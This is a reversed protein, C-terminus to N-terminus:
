STMVLLIIIDYQLTPRCSTLWDFLELVFIFCEPQNFTLDRTFIFQTIYKNKKLQKHLTKHFQTNSTLVNISM